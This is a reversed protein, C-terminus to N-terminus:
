FFSAVYDQFETNKSNGTDQANEQLGWGRMFDATRLFFEARVNELEQKAADLQQQLDEIKARQALIVDRLTPGTPREAM